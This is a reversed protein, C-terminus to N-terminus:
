SKEKTLTGTTSPPVRKHRNIAVLRRYAGFLLGNGPEAYGRACEMADEIMNHHLWCFCKVNAAVFERLALCRICTKFTEWGDVTPYLASVREYPEHPFITGNCETCKHQVRAIHDSQEYVAPAEGDDCYCDYSM